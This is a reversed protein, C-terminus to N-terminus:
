KNLLEKIIQVDGDSSEKILSTQLYFSKISFAKYVMENIECSLNNHPLSNIVYMLRDYLVNTLNKM